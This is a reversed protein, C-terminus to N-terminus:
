EPTRQTSYNSISMVEPPTRKTTTIRFLMNDRCVIEIFDSRFSKMTFEDDFDDWRKVVGDSFSAVLTLSDEEQQLSIFRSLDFIDGDVQIYRRRTSQSM